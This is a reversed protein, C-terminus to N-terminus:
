SVHIRAKLLTTKLKKSAHAVESMFNNEPVANHHKFTNMIRIFNKWFMWGRHLDLFLDPIQPMEKAVQNINELLLLRKIAIGLAPHPYPLLPSKINLFEKEYKNQALFEKLVLAEFGLQYHTFIPHLLSHFQALDYDIEGTWLEENLTPQVLSFVRSILVIAHRNNDDGSLGCLKEFSEDSLDSNQSKKLARGNILGLKLLEQLYLASNQWEPDCQMLSKGFLMPKGIPSIYGILELFSLNIKCQMSSQSFSNNNSPNLLEKNNAYDDYHWQLCFQLDPTHKKYKILSESLLDSSIMWKISSKPTIQIIDQIENYWYEIQITKWLNKQPVISSLISYTFSKIEKSSRLIRKYNNSDAIPPKEIQKHFVLPFILKPSLNLISMAFFIENPLKSGYYQLSDNTSYELKSPLCGLSVQCDIMKVMKELFKSDSALNEARVFKLTDLVAAFPIETLTKNFYGKLVFAQKLESISIGLKLLVENSEVFKYTNTQIDIIVVPVDHFILDTMGYVNEILNSKKLYSLQAASFYPARLVEGNSIKLIEHVSYYIEDKLFPECLTEAIQSNLAITNWLKSISQRQSPNIELGPFIIVPKLNNNQLPKLSNLISPRLSMSICGMLDSKIDKPLIKKLWWEGDIGTSGSLDEINGTQVLHNEELIELFKAHIDM